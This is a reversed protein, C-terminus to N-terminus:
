KGELKRLVEDRQGNNEFTTGGGSLQIPMYKARNISYADIGASEPNARVAVGLSHRMAERCTEIWGEPLASAPIPPKTTM